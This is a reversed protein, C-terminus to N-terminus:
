NGAQSGNTGVAMQAWTRPKTSIAENIVAKIERIDNEIGAIRDIEMTDQAPKPVAQQCPEEILRITEELM